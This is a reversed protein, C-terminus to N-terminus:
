MRRLPPFMSVTASVPSGTGGGLGVATKLFSVSGGAMLGLPFTVKRPRILALAEGRFRRPMKRASHAEVRTPTVRTLRGWAPGVRAM